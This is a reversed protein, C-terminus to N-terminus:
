FTLRLTYQLTRGQNLNESGAQAFGTPTNLKSSPQSSAPNTTSVSGSASGTVINNTPSCPLGSPGMGPVAQQAGGCLLPSSSTFGVSELNSSNFNPHNFINFFDMSFKIRLREKIMWNKALQADMNTNPAGYCSGRPALNGPFTGLAYNMLTFHSWNLLNPGNKGSGCEINTALPRQNAGYGTGV